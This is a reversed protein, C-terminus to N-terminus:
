VPSVPWGSFVGLSLAPQGTRNKYIDLELEIWRGHCRPKDELGPMRLLNLDLHVMHLGDVLLQLIQLPFASHSSTRLAGAHELDYINVKRPVLIM